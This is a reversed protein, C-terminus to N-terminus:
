ILVLQEYKPKIPPLEKAVGVMRGNLRYSINSIAKAESIANTYEKVDYVVTDDKKVLFGTVEYRM